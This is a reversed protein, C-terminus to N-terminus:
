RAHVRSSTRHSGRHELFDEPTDIDFSLGPTRRVEVAFGLQEARAVHRAFSGRGLLPEIRCAAPVLLANTGEEDRSPSVVIRDEGAWADVIGDVDSAMLRPLDAPLYLPTESREWCARFVALLTDNLASAPDRMWNAGRSSVLEGVVSDLSVVLVNRAESQRAASLVNSLMEIVLERRREPDVVPSLRSKADSLHKVPVVVTVGMVGDSGKAPM